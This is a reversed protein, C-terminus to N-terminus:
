VKNMKRRNALMGLMGLGLVYLISAAPLPVPTVDLASSLYFTYNSDPDTQSLYFGSGPMNESLMLSITATEGAALTFDWGMALSVDDPFTTNGYISTGIGNDLQSSQFNVFIDGNVFGPEDIEWSQGAAAVGHAAGTENFYSNLM